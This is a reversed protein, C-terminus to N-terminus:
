KRRKEIVYHKLKLTTKKEDTMVNPINLIKTMIKSKKKLELIIKINQKCIKTYEKYKTNKKLPKLIGNIIHKKPYKTLMKIM